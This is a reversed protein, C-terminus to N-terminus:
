ARELIEIEIPDGSDLYLVFGGGADLPVVALAYSPRPLWGFDAAPEYHEIGTVRVRTPPIGVMCPDGQDMESPHPEVRWPTGDWDVDDPNLPFGVVGRWSNESEPDPEKCPWEIEAYMPSIRRVRSDFPEASLLLVDGVRYGLAETVKTGWMACVTRSRAEYGFFDATPLSGM